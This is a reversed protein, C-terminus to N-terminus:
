LRPRLCSRRSRCRPISTFSARRVKMREGRIKIQQASERAPCAFFPRLRHSGPHSTLMLTSKGVGPDGGLLVLAGAVVGGGLVRDFEQLGTPIRPTEVGTISDFPVPSSNWSPPSDVTPRVQEEVFTNWEQCTPCRGIWKPSMHGSQQCTYQTKTKLEAPRRLSKRIKHVAQPVGAERELRPTGRNRSSSNPKASIKM